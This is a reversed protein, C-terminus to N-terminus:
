TTVVQWTQGLTAGGQLPLEDFEESFRKPDYWNAPPDDPPLIGIEQLSLAVLQACFLTSTPTAIKLDGEFGEEFMEWIPPFPTGEVRAICGLIAKVWGADRTVGTLPRWFPTDRYSQSDMLKLAEDLWGCQAGGHVTGTEPDPDDSIVPDPGAQWIMPRPKSPDRLVMGVHSFKSGTVFEILRSESSHGQFLLIDGTQCKELVQSLPVTAYNPDNAM